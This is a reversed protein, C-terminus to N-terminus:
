RRNYQDAASDLALRIKELAVKNIGEKELRVLVESCPSYSAGNRAAYKGAVQLIAHILALEGQVDAHLGMIWIAKDFANVYDQINVATQNLLIVTQASVIIPAQAFGAAMQTLIVPTIASKHKTKPAAAQSVLTIPSKASKHFTKPAHAVSQLALPSTASKHLTKPAAALSSLTLTSKAVRSKVAM